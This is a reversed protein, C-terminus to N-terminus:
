CIGERVKVECLINVHGMTIVNENSVRVCMKVNVTKM